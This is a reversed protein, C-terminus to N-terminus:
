SSGLKHSGRFNLILRNLQRFKRAIYLWKTLRLAIHSSLFPSFLLNWIDQPEFPYIVFKVGHLGHIEAFLLIQSGMEELLAAIDKTCDAM